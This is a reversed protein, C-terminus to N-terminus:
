LSVQDWRTRKYARLAIYLAIIQLPVIAAMFISENTLMTLLYHAMGLAGILLFTLISRALNGSQARV